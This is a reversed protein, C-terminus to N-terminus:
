LYNPLETDAKIATKHITIRKRMKMLNTKSAVHPSYVASGISKLHLIFSYLIFSASNSYYKKKKLHGTRGKFFIYSYKWTIHINM